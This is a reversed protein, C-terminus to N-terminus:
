AIRARVLCRVSLQSFLRGRQERFAGLLVKGGVERSGQSLAFGGDNESCVLRVGHDNDVSFVVHLFATGMKTVVAQVLRDEVLSVYQVQLDDRQELLREVLPKAGQM